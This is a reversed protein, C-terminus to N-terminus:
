KSLSDAKIVASDIVPLSRASGDTGVPMVHTPLKPTSFLYVFVVLVTLLVGIIIFSTKGSM